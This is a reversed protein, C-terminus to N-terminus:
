FYVSKKLVDTVDDYSGSSWKICTNKWLEYKNM